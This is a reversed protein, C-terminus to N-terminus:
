GAWHGRREGVKVTCPEVLEPPHHPPQLILVTVLHHLLDHAVVVVVVSGFPGGHLLVREADEERRPGGSKFAGEVPDCPPAGGGDEVEDVSLGGEEELGVDDIDEMAEASPVEAVEGGVLKAADAIELTFSYRESERKDGKECQIKL